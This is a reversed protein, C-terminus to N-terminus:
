GDEKIVDGICFYARDEEQIAAVLTESNFVQTLEMQLAKAYQLEASRIKASDPYKKFIALEVDDRIGNKNADVGAITADALAPDPPPPLHEGNVDNMTLKQAHIQAVVEQTRQQERVAPIRYIVLAIFLIIPVAIVWFWWKRFLSKHIPMASSSPTKLLDM